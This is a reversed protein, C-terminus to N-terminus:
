ANRLDHNLERWNNPCGILVEVGEEKKNYKKVVLSGVVQRKKVWVLGALSRLILGLIRDTDPSRTALKEGSWLKQKEGSAWVKGAGVNITILIYYPQEIDLEWGGQTAIAAKAVMKILAKYSQAGRLEHENKARKARNKPSGTVLPRGPIVFELTKESLIRRTM